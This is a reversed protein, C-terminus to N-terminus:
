ILYSAIMESLGLTDVPYNLKHLILILISAIILPPALPIMRSRKIMAFILSLPGLLILVTFVLDAGLWAGVALALLLDGSGMIIQERKRGIFWAFFIPTGLILMGYFMDITNNQMIQWILAFSLLSISELDHILHDLFDRRALLYASVIGGTLIIIEYINFKTFFLAIFSILGIIMGHLFQDFPKTKEEINEHDEM